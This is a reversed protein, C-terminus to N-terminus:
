QQRLQLPVVPNKVPKKQYPKKIMGFSNNELGKFGVIPM